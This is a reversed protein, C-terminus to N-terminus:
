AGAEPDFGSRGGSPRPRGGGGEREDEGLYQGRSRRPDDDGAGTWGESVTIRVPVSEMKELGERLRGQAAVLTQFSDRRGATIDVTLMGDPGRLLCITTASLGEPGLTLRVEGQAAGPASVLMQSVLTRVLSDLDASAPGGEPGAVSPVAGPPAQSPLGPLQAPPSAVDPPEDPTESDRGGAMPGREEETPPGGGFAGPDRRRSSALERVSSALLDAPNAGDEGAESGSHGDRERSDPREMIKRFRDREEPSTAPPVPSGGTNPPPPPAASRDDIKATM